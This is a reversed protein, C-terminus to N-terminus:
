DAAVTAGHYCGALIGCIPRRFEVCRPVIRLCVDTCHLTGDSVIFGGVRARDELPGQTDKSRGSEVSLRSCSQALQALQEGYTNGLHHRGLCLHLQTDPPTFSFVVAAFRLDLSYLTRFTSCEFHRQSM